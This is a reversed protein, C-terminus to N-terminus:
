RQRMVGISIRSLHNAKAAAIVQKGTLLREENGRLGVSTSRGKVILVNDVDYFSATIRFRTPLALLNTFKAQWVVTVTDRTIPRNPDAGSSLVKWSMERMEAGNFVFLGGCVAYYPEKAVLREPPAKRTIALWHPGKRLYAMRAQLGNCTFTNTVKAEDGPALDDLKELGRVLTARLEKNDKVDWGDCRGALLGPLAGTAPAGKDGGPVPLTYFLVLALVKDDDNVKLVIEADANAPSCKYKRLVMGGPADTEDILKAGFDGLLPKFDDFDALPKITAAPVARPPDASTARPPDFTYDTHVQVIPPDDEDPKADRKARYDSLMWGVAWAIAIAFVGGIILPVKYDKCFDEFSYDGLQFRTRVPQQEQPQQPTQAAPPRAAAVPEPPAAQPGPAAPIPPLPPPKPVPRDEHAPPAGPLPSIKPLPLLQSISPMEVVTRPTPEVPDPEPVLAPTGCHPCPQMRGAHSDPLDIPKSCTPCTLHIM